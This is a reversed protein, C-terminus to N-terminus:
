AAEEAQELLRLRPLTPKLRPSDSPLSQYECAQAARLTGWMEPSIRGRRRPKATAAQAPRRPLFKPIEIEGGNVVSADDSYISV